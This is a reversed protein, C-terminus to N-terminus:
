LEIDEKSGPAKWMFLNTLHMALLFSCAFFTNTFRHHQCQASPVSLLKSGYVLRYFDLKRNSWWSSAPTISVVLLIEMPTLAKSSECSWPFTATAAAYLSGYFNLMALPSTPKDERGPLSNSKNKFHWESLQSHSHQPLVAETGSSFPPSVAMCPSTIQPAKVLRSGKRRGQRWWCFIQIRDNYLSESSLGPM